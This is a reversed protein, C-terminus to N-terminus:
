SRYNVKNLPNSVYAKLMTDRASQKLVEVTKDEPSIPPLFELELPLPLLYFKKNIPMAAKTGSIIAPIIKNGTAKSLRFAGDYFKKLPENTRNRTGEPYICMHYGMRLVKKMEEFSKSRSKDNKRDVLVAGKAYFWGFLPIVTFSKKAITKNPGPVYPASIPVDLFANHNYLVIYTEGQKFNERGRIKLRCGILTLWINMWIRSVYIFYMQGSRGPILYAIMSPIFIILFSAVFSILGWLAWFRAFIEKFIKM